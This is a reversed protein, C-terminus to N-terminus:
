PTTGETPLILEWTMNSGSGPVTSYFQVAPEDHGIYCWVYNEESVERFVLRNKSDAGMWNIGPCEAPLYSPEDASAPAPVGLSLGLAACLSAVSLVTQTIMSRFRLVPISILATDKSPHRM